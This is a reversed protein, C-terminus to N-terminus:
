IKDIDTFRFIFEPKELGGRLSMSSEKICADYGELFSGSFKVTDGKSLSSAREFLKSRPDILTKDAADSFTNNWTKIVVNKAIEVNLVGKGDSNSDVKTVTGIWGTIARKKLAACIADDRRAKTGGRQMDNKASASDTIAVTTLNIFVKESEPIDIAYASFPLISCLAITFLKNVNMMNIAM